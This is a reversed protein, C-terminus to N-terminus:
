LMDQIWQMTFLLLYVPWQFVPVPQFHLRSSIQTTACLKFHAYYATIRLIPMLSQYLIKGSMIFRSYSKKEKKKQKYYNQM